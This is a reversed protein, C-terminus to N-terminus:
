KPHLKLLFYGLINNSSTKCFSDDWAYLRLKRLLEAFRYQSYPSSSRKLCILKYCAQTESSLINIMKEYRRQYALVTESGLLSLEETSSDFANSRAFIFAKTEPGDKIIPCSCLHSMNYNVFKHFRRKEKVRVNTELQISYQGKRRVFSKYVNESECFLEILTEKHISELCVPCTIVSETPTDVRCNENSCNSDENNALIEEKSGCVTELTYNQTVSYITEYYDYVKVLAPKSDM